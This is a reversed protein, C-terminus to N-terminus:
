GHEEGNLVRALEATGEPTGAGDLLKPLVMPSESLRAALRAVNLAQRRERQARVAAAVLAAEAQDDVDFAGPELRSEDEVLRERQEPTFLPQDVANIVGCALPLQLEKQVADILEISETTPMDGALSVVVVGSQAPDTLMEWAREADRRLIGPPVIDLIVRPVRLMDLGHGTSPADFLVVDFRHGGDAHKETTHYWAKGLMAWEYLGPVARFFTHTYKNDFVARALARVKLVLVGYEEMAHEPEIRVAWVGGAVERIEHDLPAVGFMASLREHAGCTAALVRKGRAALALAMAATISTKGVGGKGTIFLLRRSSWAHFGEPSM